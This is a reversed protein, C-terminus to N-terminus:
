AGVASSAATSAHGLHHRVAEVSVEAKIFGTARVRM